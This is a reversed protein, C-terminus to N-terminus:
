QGKSYLDYASIIRKASVHTYIQTTGISSHGLMEQVARLEAGNELLHTAFSHRLTHPSIDKAIQAKRGYKKVQLFFYVRSIPKGDRSLFVYPSKHGKNRKRPGEVYSILEALAFSSIPVIREKNGKGILRIAREKFDVNKFTLALLESVRLGTAYMVELMAKDRKGSERSTDPSELLREVEAFSLVAPLRKQPKPSPFFHLGEEIHGNEELFAYFGRLTSLRRTSTAKALEQSAMKELHREVLSPSLEETDKLSPFDKFFMKLDEEYAYVTQLSLGKELLLSQRYLKKALEIDM